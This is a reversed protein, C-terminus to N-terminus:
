SSGNSITQAEEREIFEVDCDALADAIEIGLDHALEAFAPALQELRDLM